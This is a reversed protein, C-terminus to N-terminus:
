SEGGLCNHLWSRVGDAGAVLYFDNIDKHPSPVQIPKVRSSLSQLSQLASQGAGDADLRALIVPAYVLRHHWRQPINKNAASALAVACCEVAMGPGAVQDVILADFEGEVLVVPLGREIVDANYLARSGGRFGMYKPGDIGAPRRVRIGWIIEDALHPITIGCHARVPKGDHVWATDLVRGYQYDDLHQAPIYGLKARRITGHTLGREDTLYRLARQGTPKWLENTAYRILHDAYARWENTPPQGDVAVSATPRPKSPIRIFDGTLHSKAEAFTLRHYEMLWTLVDGSKNCAGYCKWGDPYVALSYGKHEQHLPCKYLWAKGSRHAPAGLDRELYTRCDISQKIIDLDNM